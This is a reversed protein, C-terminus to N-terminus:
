STQATAPRIERVRFCTLSLRSSEAALLTPRAPRFLNLLEDNVHQSFPFLALSLSLSLSVYLHLSTHTYIYIYIYIYIYLSLSLYFQKNTEKHTHAQKM